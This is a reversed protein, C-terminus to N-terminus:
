PCLTLLFLCRSLQSHSVHDPLPLPLLLICCLGRQGTTGVTAEGDEGGGEASTLILCGRVLCAGATRQASGEPEASPRVHITLTSPSRPPPPPFSPGQNPARQRLAATGGPCPWLGHLPYFGLYSDCLHWAAPGVRGCAPQTAKSFKTNEDTCHTGVECPQIHIHSSIHAGCAICHTVSLFRHSIFCGPCFVAQACLPRRAHCPAHGSSHEFM